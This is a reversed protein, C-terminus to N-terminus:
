GTCCCRVTKPTFCAKCFAQQLLQHEADYCGQYAPDAWLGYDQWYAAFNQGVVESFPTTAPTSRGAGVSGRSPFPAVGRGTLPFPVVGRGHTKPFPVGGRGDQQLPARGRGRNQPFPAMGRGNQPFPVVGGGSMGPYPVVGGGAYMGPFPAVGGGAYMGQFPVM